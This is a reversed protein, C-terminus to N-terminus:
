QPDGILSHIAEDVSPFIPCSGDKRRAGWTGDPRYQVKASERVGDVPDLDVRFSWGHGTIDTCTVRTDTDYLTMTNRAQTM